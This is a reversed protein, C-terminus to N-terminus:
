EVSYPLQLYQKNDLNQCQCNNGCLTCPHLRPRSTETELRDRSRIKITETEPSDPFTENRDGFFLEQKCGQSISFQTKCLLHVFCLMIQLLKFGFWFRRPRTETEFSFTENVDRICYTVISSNLM